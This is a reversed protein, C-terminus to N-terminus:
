LENQEQCFAEFGADDQAQEQALERRERIIAQARRRRKDAKRAAKGKVKPHERELTKGNAAVVYTSGDRAKRISGPRAPASINQPRRKFNFGSIHM